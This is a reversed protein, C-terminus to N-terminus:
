RSATIRKRILPIAPLTFIFCFLSNLLWLLVGRAFSPQGGPLLHNLMGAAPLALSFILALNILLYIVLIQRNTERM